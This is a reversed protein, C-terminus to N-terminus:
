ERRLHPAAKAALVRCTGALGAATAAAVGAAVTAVAPLPQFLWDVRLVGTVVLRAALSGLGAAVGGAVAGLLGYEILLAALLDARRAGLVKLLVAERTRQQRGAAISGVLVLGGAGLCVLAAARIAAGIGAVVRNVADLAEKVRISSVNPMAGIVAREVNGDAGPPARVTAIYGAPAGDLSGPSLIFTFNMSLASWDIDRLNAVTATIERGLVNVTISQGVALGVGKAIGADLSVLPPGHYDAPWWQGAIVHADDPRGAATTLGRDGRVAWQADPAIAVQDVPRGDIRSIRGRVMAASKVSDGGAATVLRGFAAVQEPQIGIFFFTPASQPLREDIQRALNAEVEAVAVLVTLGLGLSLVVGRTPAGPRGLSSLALRLAPRGGMGAVRHAVRRAAAAFGSGVVAFLGLAVISGAVFAAAWTPEAASVVALLALGAAALAMVALWRGGPLPQRPEALDRFLFAAPVGAARALPWAAYALATLAGFAAALALPRPYLALQVPVPLAEGLLGALVWPTAAGAAVGLGIGIGSLAAVQLGYVVIILRQSAGLCKLTAISAKRGDVFAAVGNAVGIGGIVLAALGVLTLFLTMHDLFRKLGPAADSTDRWQWGAAPFRQAVAQRFAALSIGPALRVLVVHRVLSGPRLLGTDALARRDILLRPGFSFTAAVRDPEHVIAARLTLRAEGLRITQGVHLGLRDFLNADAAAGFGDDRRGLAPVIGQDPALDLRGFLPYHQDVAKVEVLTQRDGAEDRAMARLEVSNALTGFRALFDTEDDTPPRLSLRLQVDGGLLSRADDSLTRLMAADLSGAAAIAAVGLALCSLFVSVGALSGRLERRALRVALGIM